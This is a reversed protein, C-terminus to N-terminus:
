TQEGTLSGTEPHKHHLQSKGAILVDGDTTIQGATHHLYGAISSSAGSGSANTIAISGNGTINKEVTLQDSATVMPTNFDVRTEANVEMVKANLRFTETTVEILRGRKLVIRDGEDTYLAVEGTKLGKLRYAGHETAIIIGHSTKGGMPLVVKMTGGPPNSTLGYHQFLEDDRGTEGALADGQVMQVPGDAKVLGIVGRFALRISARRRAIREDIQRIM